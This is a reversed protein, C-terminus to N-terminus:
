VDRIDRNKNRETTEYVNKLKVITKIEIKVWEIKRALLLINTLIYKNFLHGTLGTKLCSNIRPVPKYTM